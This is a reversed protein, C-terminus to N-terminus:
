ARGVVVSARRTSSSRVRRRRRWGSASLMGHRRGCIIRRTSCTRRSSTSAPPRWAPEAISPITLEVWPEEAFGGYKAADFAREIADINAALRVRGSLAATQQDPALRALGAFRPLASVAYNIKALTGHTRINQVRRIFDPDLDIPDVFGLLTRKPDVASVVARAAIEDGSALSVGTATGGATDIRQVDAGTRIEVGAQRAAAEIAEAVAGVGGRAYWGNAIPHREGAGLLLLLATSGASWPGLFSGLIGGAAIVARLPESEFWESAFDAVAMPLWRILRYADPKGLQRFRRGTKLLEILDGASPDDISPPASALLARIVTSVNAFSALFAPYQAADKESWARIEGARAGTAGCCCRADM